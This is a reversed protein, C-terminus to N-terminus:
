VAFIVQDPPNANGRRLAFGRHQQGRFLRPIRRRIIHSSLRTVEENNGGSLVRHQTPRLFGSATRHPRRRHLRLLILYPISAGRASSGFEFRPPSM